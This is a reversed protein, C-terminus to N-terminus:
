QSMYYIEVEFLEWYDYSSTGNTSNFRFAAKVQSEGDAYDSIDYEYVGDEDGLHDLLTWSSGNDNSILVDGYSDGSLSSNYFNHDMSLQTNVAETANISPTILWEDQWVDEDAEDCRAYKDGYDDEYHEWTTASKNDITWNEPIGAEFDESIMLNKRSITANVPFTEDFTGYNTVNAIVEEPEGPTFGEPSLIDTAAVDHYDIVTIEKTVSDNAPNTDGSLQTTSNMLFTGEGSPTWDAFNVTKSENANLDVTVEDTYEQNYYYVEVNDISWDDFDSGGDTSNFRFAVKVDSSGDAYNSIDFTFTGDSDGLREILNWTSGNDNSVLVDGYSDGSYSSNYFDSDFSIYTNTASSANIEPTILSEDQWVGDKEEVTAYPTDFTYGDDWYWTEASQNDITWDSPINDNFDEDILNVEQAITTNVPVDTLDNDGYNEVVASVSHASTNVRDGPSTIEEVGVDDTAMPKNDQLSNSNMSQGVSADYGPDEDLYRAEITDNHSVHLVGEEDVLSTTINGQFVGDGTENLTVIEGSPETDSTINIDYTGEGKLDIDNLEINVTSNGQYESQDLEITGNKAGVTPTNFVALAFDQDVEDTETVADEVINKAEVEITYKGSKLEEPPIFVNEINNRDDNDDGDTDFGSDIQGSGIVSMGDEFANGYWVDGSPDIVKLWLDNKLAPNTETGSDPEGYVDSYAMTVNLPYDTDDVNVDYSVADGTELNEPRDWVDWGPYNDQDVIPPLFVRGWGEAANPIPDTNGAEDDMDKAANIMLAKTMEPSPTEEYTEEYYSAIVAGAGAATPGAMSTGDCWEYRSDETYTGYLADSGADPSALSLTGEGPAAVDPKVRGDMELGQSSFDSIDDPNSVDSGMGNGYSTSDPMYNKSSGVGVVNKASAPSTIANESGGNGASVFISMPQEGPEEDNADRVANDYATDTEAYQSDGRSEGWSNTSIYADGNIKGDAPVDYYDDPFDASGDTEFIQSVWLNSEPASGQAVYFDTWGEYTVGNGNYTDGAALGACHTGHGYGDHWGDVTSGMDTGGLVRGTLDNHGADPTSGDGLGTDAVQITVDQGKYGLQNAHSGYEGEGRYPADEPNDSDFYGGTIQTGIEDKLEHEKYPTIYRVSPNEAIEILDARSDTQVMVKYYGTELKEYMEVKDVNSVLSTAESFSTEGDMFIKIRYSQDVEEAEMIKDDIKYEPHYIGTWDVFDLSEVKERQRPTMRVLYAYNPVYNILRVGINELETRWEPNIPGLMHVLYAGQEGEKFDDRKLSIDPSEETFDFKHGGPSLVTRDNLPDYEIGNRSLLDMEDETGKILAYNNYRDLIELGMENITSIDKIDRTNVLIIKSNVEESPSETNVLASAASSLISFVLIAVCVFATVKEIKKGKM